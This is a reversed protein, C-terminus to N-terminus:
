KNWYDICKNVITDILIPDSVEQQNADTVELIDPDRVGESFRLTCEYIDGNLIVRYLDRTVEPSSDLLQVDDEAFKRYFQELTTSKM